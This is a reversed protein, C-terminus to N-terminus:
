FLTEIQHFFTSRSIGFKTETVGFVYLYPLRTYHVSCKEQPITYNNFNNVGLNVKFVLFSEQIIESDDEM